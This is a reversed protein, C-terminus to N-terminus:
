DINHSTTHAIGNRPDDNRVAQKHKNVRIKLARKTEGIYVKSCYNCPVKYVAEKKKEEPTKQKVRVLLQKLTNQCKFIAKVGHSTCAKELRESLGRVYPLLLTVQPEEESQM